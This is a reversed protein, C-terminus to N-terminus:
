VLRVPRLSKEALWAVIEDIAEPRIEHGMPYERYDVPVGLGLLIERADHAQEVPIAPDETGHVLLTPLQSHASTKELGQVLAGPLWASMALLGAFRAPNRLALLYAMFGGQSFGGVVLRRPDIPYRAVAEDLFREVTAVAVEVEEPDPERGEGLPFWGYGAMGPALEMAVGGQPCLVLARGGYLIPALGLLDHASAGWGHLLLLTPHPGEGEPVHAAYMLSM